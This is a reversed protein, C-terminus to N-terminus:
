EGKTLATAKALALAREARDIKHQADVIRDIHSIGPPSTLPAADRWGSTRQVPAQPAPSTTLSPSAETVPNPRRADGRLESFFSSPLADIMAQMAERPMSFGATYDIPQWPEAKFPKSNAAEELKSLRDSLEANKAKLDELETM